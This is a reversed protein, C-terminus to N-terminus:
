PWILIQWNRMLRVLNDANVDQFVTELHESSWFLSNIFVVLDNAEYKSTTGDHLQFFGIQYVNDEYTCTLVLQNEYELFFHGHNITINKTQM